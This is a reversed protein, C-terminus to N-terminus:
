DESLPSISYEIPIEESSSREVKKSALLYEGGPQIDITKLVNDLRTEIPENFDEHVRAQIFACMVKFYYNDSHYTAYRDYRGDRDMEFQEGFIKTLHSGINELVQNTDSYHM